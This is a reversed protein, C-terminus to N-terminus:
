ETELRAIHLDNNKRKWLDEPPLDATISEHFCKFVELVM